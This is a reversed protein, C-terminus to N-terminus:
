GHYAGELAGKIKVRSTEYDYLSEITKPLKSLSSLIGSLVIEASVLQGVSLQNKEILYIGIGILFLQSVIFTVSVNFKNRKIYQFHHHREVLYDEINSESLTEGSAKQKFLIYKQESEKLSTDVAENWSAFIWWVSAVLIFLLVIFLPHFVLILLLGFVLLLALEVLHSFSSAFAKMMNFIEFFYPSQKNQGEKGWSKIEHFFIERQMYENLIVQSYKFVQSLILAASLLVLFTLTNSLIGSLALNNVLYQTTLPIILSSLGYIIAYFIYKRSLTLKKWSLYVESRKM